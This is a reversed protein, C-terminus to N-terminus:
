AYSQVRQFLLINSINSQTYCVHLPRETVSTILMLTAPKISRRNVADNKPEQIWNLRAFLHFTCMQRDVLCTKVANKAVSSYLISPPGIFLKGNLIASAKM